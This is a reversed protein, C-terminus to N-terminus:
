IQLIETVDFTIRWMMFHPAQGHPVTCKVVANVTSNYHFHVYQVVEEKLRSDCKM